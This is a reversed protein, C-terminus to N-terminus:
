PEGCVGAVVRKLTGLDFPKQLVHPHEALVSGPEASSVADGTTLIIREVLAPTEDRLARM